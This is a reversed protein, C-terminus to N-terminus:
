SHIVEDDDDDDDDDDDNSIADDYGEDYGNSIADHLDM